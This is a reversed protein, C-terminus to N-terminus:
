GKPLWALAASYGPPAPLLRLELGRLAEALAPDDTRWPIACGATASPIAADFKGEVATVARAVADVDVSLATLSDQLGTGLAKFIAEKLSWVWHFIEDVRSGHGSLTFSLMLLARQEEAHLCVDWSSRPEALANLREIDVGVRVDPSYALLGWHGAHSVNFDPPGGGVLRPRGQADVEFAVRDPQLGLERGLVDRLTARVVAFRARDEEKHLAGLRFHEDASLRSALRAPASSADTIRIFQLALSMPMVFHCARWDTSM